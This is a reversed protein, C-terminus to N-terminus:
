KAKELATKIKELFVVAEFPKVVYDVAGLKIASDIDDAQSKATLMVVPISKTTAEEKLKALAQLGDMGPMMIDLLILDPKEKRAKDLGEQGDCAVLSEYGAQQLRIQIAKVLEPEDDVVLIRKKAM